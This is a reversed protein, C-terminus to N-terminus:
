LNHKASWMSASVFCFFYVWSCPLRTPKLYTLAHQYHLINFNLVGRRVCVCESVGVHMRTHQWWEIEVMQWLLRIFLTFLCWGDGGARVVCRVFGVLLSGVQVVSKVGAFEHGRFLFGHWLSWRCGVSFQILTRRFAAQKKLEIRELVFITLKQKWSNSKNRPAKSRTHAVGQICIKHHQALTIQTVVRVVWHYLHILQRHYAFCVAQVQNHTSTSPKAHPQSSM